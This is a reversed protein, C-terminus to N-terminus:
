NLCRGHSISLDIFNIHEGTGDSNDSKLTLFMVPAGTINKYDMLCPSQIFLKKNISLYKLLVELEEALAFNKAMIVMENRDVTKIERCGTIM